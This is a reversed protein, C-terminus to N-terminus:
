LIGINDECLPPPILSIKDLPCNPIRKLFSEFSSKIFFSSSNISFSSIYKLLVRFAFFPRLRKKSFFHIILYLLNNELIYDHIFDFNM